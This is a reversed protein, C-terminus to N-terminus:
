KQESESVSRSIFSVLTREKLKNHQQMFHRCAQSRVCLLAIKIRFTDWLVRNKTDMFFMSALSLNQLCDKRNQLLTISAGKGYLGSFCRNKTKTRRTLIIKDFFDYHKNNGTKVFASLYEKRSQSSATSLESFTPISFAYKQNKKSATPTPQMQIKDKAFVYPNLILKFSICLLLYGTLRKAVTYTM